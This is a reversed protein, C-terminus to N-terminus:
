EQNPVADIAAFVRLAQVHSAVDHVRFFRAGRVAMMAAAAVSAADREAPEQVGSIAGLFSKRSAGWLIPYGLAEIREAAAMLAVNQEVTKGFGLGVDLAVGEPQIGVGRAVEARESLEASVAAVVDRHILPRDYDHSYVDQDPPRVRHMLIIGVGREAAVPLMRDDEEGASVDNIADAGAELAAAAVASCTTDVTILVDTLAGRVAEVVPCVRRIQEAADIRQAGPRTSEGGIDLVDAGLEVCRLAHERARDVSAHQGGDSFSDPTVNLVAMLRPRDLILERGPALRWRHPPHFRNMM